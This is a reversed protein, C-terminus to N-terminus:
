DRVIARTIRRRGHLVRLIIATDNEADWDYIMVYPLVVAIRTTSGLRPRLPGSGPLRALREYVADFQDLYNAVTRAGAHQSLYAAIEDIDGDAKETVVIRAM